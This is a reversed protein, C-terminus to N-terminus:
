LKAWVEKRFMLEGGSENYHKSITCSVTITSCLLWSLRDLGCHTIM